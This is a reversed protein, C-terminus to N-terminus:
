KNDKPHGVPAPQYQEVLAAPILWDRGQKELGHQKAIRRAIKCAWDRGCGFRAMIDSTTFDPAEHLYAESLDSGHLDAGHLDAREGGEEGRQWAAHKDLIAKLDPTM